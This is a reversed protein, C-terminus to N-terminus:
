RSFDREKAEAIVKQLIEDLESIEYPKAIVDKFGYEKYNAVIPDNAYGSSVLAKVGPDIELLRKITEKGGMGGPITLDMIVADFPKSLECADKYLRIAELGEEAAEIEYKLIKLHECLIDRLLYEDDMLLVKGKCVAPEGAYKNKLHKNKPRDVREPAHEKLYKNFSAPLYIYFTAGVDMKSGVTIHGGHKKVISYTTALGLGNGNQKTTFYPDFIKQLNEQSIGTGHDKIAIKIYRGALLPMLDYEELIINEASVKISGGEPMAQDANIILNSIVQNMQGRDADVLWLDEPIDIEYTLNSGSLVLKVSGRILESISVTSKVPEGGKSFTLLQQTLARSQHIAKESDGLYGYIQEDPNTHLKALSVFGLITQLSNNFDHAIGGALIGVSELKQMKLLEENSKALEATREVIRQELSSNLKELGQEAWKREVVRGLQTGVDAMVDIFQQNPEAEETTFFELVAVVSAGVMVPFAIGSKIHTERSTKIRPFNDDKTVDTIWHPKCSALVRGPLGIGRKFRTVETVKRFNNFKEADEIHWVTTPVLLGPDDTSIMYAHGIPWATHNCIENLIRQFADNVEIAENAAVATVQLLKLYSSKMRLMKEATKRDTTEEQVGIFHTITGDSNKIPSISVNVWFLEGNKKKDQFEGHWEGGSNIKKWLEKYVDADHEGSKLIRPTHGVAEDITYGTSQTFKPNVYEINGKVNTIIVSVPSQEVARSLKRLEEETLKRWNIEKLLKENTRTLKWTRENIRKELSGTLSKIKEAMSNFSGTLLGIEDSNSVKLRYDLDGKGFRETADKLNTIPKIASLSFIVGLIIAVGGSLGGAVLAIIGLGLLPAFVEAKDMEALLTWGYEPLDVAAGVIPVGRYDHYIGVMGKDGSMVRRIYEIDVLQHLVADTIFRSETIMVKDRNVLYVEGTKGMGTRDGTIENLSDLAYANIVVGITEGTGNQKSKLPASIFICNENIYPSRYTRGVFTEGFKNNISNIFLEHGSVNNGIIRQNTSSVVIGDLGIVAIEMIQPDIPKKNVNLHNNLNSIADGQTGSQVITELSDRIFGDSSFDITRGRKAAMFSLAHIKKSEAIATLQQLIQTKLTSRANLYYVTTIISIPILSICLTFLILKGKISHLVKM